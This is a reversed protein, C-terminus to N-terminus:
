GGSRASGVGKKEEMGPTLKENNNNEIVGSDEAESEPAADDGGLGPRQM